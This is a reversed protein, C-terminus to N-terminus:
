NTKNETIAKRLERFMKKLEIIKDIKDFLIGMKFNSTNNQIGSYSCHTPMNFLLKSNATICIHLKKIRKKKFDSFLIVSFVSSNQCAATHKTGSHFQM